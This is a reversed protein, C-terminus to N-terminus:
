ASNINKKQNNQERKKFSYIKSNYPKKFQIESFEKPIIRLYELFCFFFLHFIKKVHKINRLFDSSHLFECSFTPFEYLQNWCM